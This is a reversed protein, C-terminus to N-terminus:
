ASGATATLFAQVMRWDTFKLQNVIIAPSHVGATLLAAGFAAGSVFTNLPTAM